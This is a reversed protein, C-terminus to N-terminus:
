ASTFSRFRTMSISPPPTFTSFLLAAQSKRGMGRSADDHAISRLMLNSHQLLTFRMWSSGDRM